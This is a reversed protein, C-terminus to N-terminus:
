FYTCRLVQLLELASSGYFNLSPLSLFIASISNSAPRPPPLPLTRVPELIPLLEIILTLDEKPPNFQNETGPRLIFPILGPVPLYPNSIDNLSPLWLQIPRPNVGNSGAELKGFSIATFSSSQLCINM